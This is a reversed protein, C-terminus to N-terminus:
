VKENLIKKSKTTKEKYTILAQGNLLSVNIIECGDSQLQELTSNILQEMAEPNTVIKYVLKVKIM